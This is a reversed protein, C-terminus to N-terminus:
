GVIKFFRSKASNNNKPATDLGANSARTLGFEKALKILVDRDRNMQGVEVRQVSNGNTTFDTLGHESIIRKEERWSAYTDCLMALMLRDTNRALGCDALEPVLEGWLERAEGDLWDPPEIECEPPVAESKRAAARRSGRRELIATPTKAPGRQGM